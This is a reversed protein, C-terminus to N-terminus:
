YVIYAIIIYCIPQGLLFIAEKYLSLSTLIGGFTLSFLVSLFCVRMTMKMRVHEINSFHSDNFKELNLIKNFNKFIDNM